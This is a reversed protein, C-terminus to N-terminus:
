DTRKRGNTLCVTVTQDKPDLGRAMIANTLWKGYDNVRRESRFINVQRAALLFVNLHFQVVAVQGNLCHAAVAIILLILVAV